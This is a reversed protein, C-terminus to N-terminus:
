LSMLKDDREHLPDGSRGDGFVALVASTASHVIWVFVVHLRVRDSVGLKPTLPRSEHNVGLNEIYGGFFM